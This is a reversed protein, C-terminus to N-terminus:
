RTNSLGTDHRQYISHKLLIECFEERDSEIACLLGQHITAGPLQSYLFHVVCEQGSMIALDLATRGQSDECEVSVIGLALLERMLAEDGVEAAGMFKRENENLGPRLREALM